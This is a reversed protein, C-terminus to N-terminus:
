TKTKEVLEVAFTMETDVAKAMDYITLAAVSAATLAEMEVGTQATTRVRAEIDYGDAIPTLTVDVHALPLPHCLPIVNATQKAAMIGALRATQLPDGKKVAGSRIQAIAERSMTVRGRAVAERTTVPKDSVDVM